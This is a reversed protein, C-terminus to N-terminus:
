AEALVCVSAISKGVEAGVSLTDSDGLMECRLRSQLHGSILSMCTVHTFSLLVIDVKFAVDSM